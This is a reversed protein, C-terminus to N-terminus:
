HVSQIHKIVAEFHLNMAAQEARLQAIVTPQPDDAMAEPTANAKYKGRLFQLRKQHMRDLHDQFSDAAKVRSVTQQSWGTEESVERLTSGNALSEKIANFEEEDLSRVM